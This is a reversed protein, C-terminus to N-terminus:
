FHVMPNLLGWIPRREIEARIGINAEISKNPGIQTELSARAGVSVGGNTSNSLELQGKLTTQPAVETGAVTLLGRMAVFDGNSYTPQGPMVRFDLLGANYNLYSNKLPDIAQISPGNAFSWTGQVGTPVVMKAPLPNGKGDKGSMTSKFQASAYIQPNKVPFLLKLATQLSSEEKKDNSNTQSPVPVNKNYYKAMQENGNLNIPISELGELEIHATVKNESFAYTSNYVYKDSLPDIQWFRGIQPDDMRYKFEYVNVGLEDNYEQGQFKKKKNEPGFVLAKGSIGAMTLGFPYYHTEEVIAGPTHTVTLNDFFVPLNSENSVYIYLFGNKIVNVPNNIFAIHQKYGGGTNVPDAGGTGAVYKLQEDFLIWNLFAEPTNSPAVNTSIFNNLNSTNAGLGSVTGTTVSGHTASVAGSGAFATLLETLGLTLPTGAGGGPMTYYSEAAIKVQDGSMVKLVIGLGTKENTNGGHVRYLKNGFSSQSAGTTAKDIRRGDMITYIDDETQWAADEVTAPIYCVDENQETLVMRVNSLHDKIFYDFVFRDNQPTCTAATAKAFRIRGEEHAIFQLTDNVYVSGAIYLTVMTDVGPEYTTKKLKNGNADYTYVITGKDGNSKRVTISQPLNLHNYVIGNHGANTVIDKNLDKVMNGNTDYEYDTTSIGKSSNTPHLTSTRFDGLKTQADNLGDIVNLLKNSGTMYNYSLSDITYSGGLKLGRQKMSQINGNADYSMCNLSFDIGASKSFASSTYQNFDASLIRNAADYTFDYKRKEADGMSKWTMGGINGNYQASSYSQGAIINAMKDYGLEFGFYNTTADKVYDRNMGLMWGRINFEYNATELGTGSNYNPAIKKKQLQGVANYENKVIENETGGTWATSNYHWPTKKVSSVRGLDDYEFVTKVFDFRAPTLSKDSESFHVLVKGSFDYQNQNINIAGTINHDISQLLRGDDDYYQIGYLYQNTGLVKTKTGTVMGITAFSQTIAQPYPYTTNSPTLFHGDNTTIRNPSFPNHNAALWDYNDYFTETLMELSAESPIPNKNVIVSEIASSEGDAGSPGPVIEASFTSGTTEFGELLTISRLAQPDGSAIGSSLTVDIAIGTNPSSPTQTQTTVDAQLDSLTEDYTMIGTLVPRNLADYLTVLWQDNGRMNADQTFVLRDRSDYVMYVEGAGPVKKRAMRGRKDYEYRFSQEDLIGSNFTWSNTILLETGAPQVVCRLQGLVDYIYYTCLWGYYGKGTGDDSLATLQVKKLLIQGEKDKFEIVQKGHEDITANKYLSGAAYFGTSAYSGFANTVDTVNWIRVSDTVTNLYYKSEVGRSAGVWNNGPAMAKQTRNLPSSEFDTKGYYYTEGTFMSKNFTSDQQFPNIKFLGDTISSNGGTNNAAFPLYKKVQRGFEDYLAPSVLDVPSNGTVLSGQKIVTQIPRGLGDMYQTTQKIDRLTKTALVYPDTQPSTVDFTRVYNINVGSAYPFPMIDQSYSHTGVVLMVIFLYSYRKM